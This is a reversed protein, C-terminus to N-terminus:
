NINAIFFTCIKFVTYPESNISNVEHWIERLNFAVVWIQICIKNWVQRERERIADRKEM